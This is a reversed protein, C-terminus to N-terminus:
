IVGVKEAIKSLLSEMATMRDPTSSVKEKGTFNFSWRMIIDEKRKKNGDEKFSSVVVIQDEPIEQSIVVDAGWLTAFLGTRLKYAKTEMDMIDRGCKRLDAYRFSNMFLHTVRCNQSEMAAFLDCIVHENVGDLAYGKTGCIEAKGISVMLERFLAELQRSERVLVDENQRKDEITKQAMRAEASSCEFFAKGDGDIFKIKNM